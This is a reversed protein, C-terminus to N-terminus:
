FIYSGKEVCYTKGDIVITAKTPTTIEYRVTDNVYKWERKLEYNFTKLNDVISFHITISYDSNKQRKAHNNLISSVHKYYESNETKYGLGYSGFLGLKIANLLTTKGAGNEGGVLLVNKKEETEFNFSNYGKYAGINVLEIKKLYM